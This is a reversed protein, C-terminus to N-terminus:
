RLVRDMASQLTFRVQALAADALNYLVYEEPYRAKLRQYVAEKEPLTSASAGSQCRELEELIAAVAEVQQQAAEVEEEMRQQERGLIVATDQEPLLACNPAQTTCTQTTNRDATNSLKRAYAGPWVARMGQAGYEQAVDDCSTRGRQVRRSPGACHRLTPWTCAM